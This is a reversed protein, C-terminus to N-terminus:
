SAFKLAKQEEKFDSPSLKTVKKFLRSFHAPDEFGLEYAIQQSQLDTFLMLRKAELVVREHIIQLPSKENYKKFLNSLTKPSKFLLEAYDAVNKKTRFHVDVLLNFQRVTELQSSSVKKTVLQEKAIRTHMIILRKLLMKLMEGQITDRTKFEDVFVQLLLEFKRQMDKDLSIPALSQTGFFIIGNCSVEDDHDLVCYFEKNFSFITLDGHDCNLKVVHYYTITVACNPGFVTPINDIYLTIDKDTRNWLIHILKSDPAMFDNATRIEDSLRFIGELSRDSYEFRM